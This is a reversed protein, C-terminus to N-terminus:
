GNDDGLAERARELAPWAEPECEMMLGKQARREMAMQSICEALHTELVEIREALTLGGAKYAEARRGQEEARYKWKLVDALNAELAERLQEVEAELNNREEILRAWAYRNMTIDKM